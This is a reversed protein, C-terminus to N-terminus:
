SSIEEHENLRKLDIAIKGNQNDIINTFRAKWIIDNASYSYRSHVYQAYTDDIGKIYVLFEAESAILEEPSLGYLPSKEDLPHVITWSMPFFNVKKRELELGYFRRIERDEEIVNIALAVEVEVEILESRRGNIIRFMLAQGQKFPSILMNESYRVKASPRSFRGYLLGTILAFGMLGIMAEIAAVASATFGKPSMYGFGVTTLTQTSFFFGEGFREWNNLTEMGRINEFGAVMYVGTFLLNVCLYYTLVISNFKWWPMTILWHYISGIDVSDSGKRNVNFSGDPNIAKERGTTRNSLGTDTLENRHGFLKSHLRGTRQKREMDSIVFFPSFRVPRLGTM